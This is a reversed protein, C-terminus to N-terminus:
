NVQQMAATQAQQRKEREKELERAEDECAHQESSIIALAQMLKHRQDLVGGTEPLFGNAYHAALDYLLSM